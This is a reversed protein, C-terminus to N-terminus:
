EVCLEPDPVLCEAEGAGAAGGVGRTTFQADISIQLDKPLLLWMRGNEKMRSAREGAGPGFGWFYDARVPGRIAGGTDQALVLRNLGTGIGQGETSIFVPFGLPTTRPDVAVSRGPTLPVGLAGLPGGDSDPIQRFFVYSPDSSFVSLSEASSFKAVLNTESKVRAPESAVAPRTEKSSVTTSSLPIRQPDANGKLLLEVMREVEPSLNEDAVKAGPAPGPSQEAGDLPQFGRLTPANTSGAGAAMDQDREADSLPIEIGRTLITTPRSGSKRSAVQVPPSFPHGNQEAYALRVLQGDPLRVKGSGQVQMSYLAALDDVWVIVHAVALVGQEIQARTYYPVIRQGEIRVRLKKDRIDPKSDGVDLAYPDNCFAGLAFGTCGPIVTRGEVRAFVKLGGFTRPISRSDLYLLDEPVGYVPYIYPDGYRRSGRLLPEYYGTIVGAPSQDKNHIQYLAFERELYRRVDDDNRANVALSRACPGAWAVRSALVGCSARFAKWAEAMSDDRWGPLDSFRSPVFYAYKTWFPDPPPPEASAPQAGESGLSAQGPQASATQTLPMSVVTVAFWALVTAIRALFM